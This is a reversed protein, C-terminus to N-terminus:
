PLSDRSSLIPLKIGSILQLYNINIKIAQGLQTNSCFHSVLLSIDFVLVIHFIIYYSRFWLSMALLEISAVNTLDLKCCCHHHQSHCRQFVLVLISKSILPLM